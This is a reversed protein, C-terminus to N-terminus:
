SQPNEGFQRCLFYIDMWREIHGDMWVNMWGDRKEDMRGNREQCM